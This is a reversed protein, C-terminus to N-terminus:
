AGYSYFTVDARADAGGTPPQVPAPPGDQVRTYRGAADYSYTTTTFTPRGAPMHWAWRRRRAQPRAAAPPAPCFWGFLGAFFCGLLQRRSFRHPQM